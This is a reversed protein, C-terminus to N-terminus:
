FSGELIVENGRKIEINNIETNISNLIYGGKAEIMKGLGTVQYDGEPLDAIISLSDETRTVVARSDGNSLELKEGEDPITIGLIDELDEEVRNNDANVQEDSIPEVVNQNRFRNYLVAVLVIVVIGIIVDLLRPRM